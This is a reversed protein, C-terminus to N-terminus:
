RQNEHRIMARKSQRILLEVWINAERRVCCEVTILRFWWEHFIASSAVVSNRLKWEKLSAQVVRFSRDRHVWQSTQRFPHVLNAQIPLLLQLLLFARVSRFVRLSPLGRVALHTEIAFNKFFCVKVYCEEVPSGPVGPRSPKAPKSPRLPSRPYRPSLPSWPKGPGRPYGPSFPSPPLNSTWSSLVALCNQIMWPRGPGLPKFPIGPMFPSLPCCPRGPVCPGDPKGPSLPNVPGAPRSPSRPAGPFEPSFPLIQCVRRVLSRTLERISKPSRPVSAGGFMRPWGPDIPLGPSLPSRPAGPSGPSIPRDPSRPSCPSMPRIPRSPGRPGGPTRPSIPM